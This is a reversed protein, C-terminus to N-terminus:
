PAGITNFSHTYQNRLDRTQRMYLGWALGRRQGIGAILPPGDFLLGWLIGRAHRLRRQLHGGSM